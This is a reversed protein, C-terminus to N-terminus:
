VEVNFDYYDIKCSRKESYVEGRRITTGNDYRRLPLHHNIANPRVELSVDLTELSPLGEAREVKISSSKRKVHELKPFVSINQM